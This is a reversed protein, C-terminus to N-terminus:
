KLYVSLSLITFFIINAEIANIRDMTKMIFGPFSLLIKNFIKKETLKRQIPMTNKKSNPFPKPGACM